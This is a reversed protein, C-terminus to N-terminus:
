AVLNFGDVQTIGHKKELAAFEDRFKAEMERRESEPLFAARVGNIGIQQLDKVSLGWREHAEQYDHSLDIGSVAPDDTNITVPLGKEFFSRMPHQDWTEVAGTQINSTPCIELPINRDLVLSEVAPDQYTRVGHGIRDAGLNEISTRVNEPGGAEGAHVTVKLGAKKADQFVQAYPGPPYHFEDNALDLAVVGKDQYQEALLEAQRAPAEGMQREVIVILNVNIGSDKEGQEMGAVVGDMVDKHPLGYTGAMYIPSFRLELYKVNDKAADNVVARTIDIIAEKSKFIKGITDFKKLFDLLTKDDKTVQLFPRLEELNRTPLEVGYKDAAALFAEPSIAGELHRHLDVKPMAKLFGEVDGTSPTFTERQARFNLGGVNTASDGTVRPGVLSNANLAGIM